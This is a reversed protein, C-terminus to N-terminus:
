AMIFKKTIMPSYFIYVEVLEQKAGESRAQVDFLKKVTKPPKELASPLAASIKHTFTGSYFPHTQLDPLTSIHRPLQLDPMDTVAEKSQRHRVTRVM